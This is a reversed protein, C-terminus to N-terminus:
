ARSPIAAHEALWEKAIRVSEESPKPGHFVRIGRHYGHVFRTLTALVESPLSALVSGVNGADILQLSQLMLGTSNLRGVEYDALARQLTTM